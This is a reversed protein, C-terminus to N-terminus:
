DRDTAFRLVGSIHVARIVEESAVDYAVEHSAKVLVVDGAMPVRAAEWTDPSSWAGSKSSRVITLAPVDDSPAPADDAARVSFGTSLVLAVIAGLLPAKTSDFLTM